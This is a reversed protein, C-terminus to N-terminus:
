NCVCECVRRFMCMVDYMFYHLRVYVRIFTYSVCIAISWNQKITNIACARFGVTYYLFFIFILWDTAIRSRKIRKLGFFADLSHSHKNKYKM